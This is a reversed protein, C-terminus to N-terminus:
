DFMNLSHIIDTLAKEYEKRNNYFPCNNACSYKMQIMSMVKSKNNATRKVQTIEKVNEALAGCSCLNPLVM